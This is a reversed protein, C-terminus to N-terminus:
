RGSTSQCVKVKIKSAIAKILQAALPDKIVAASLATPTEIQFTVNAIPTSIAMPIPKARM